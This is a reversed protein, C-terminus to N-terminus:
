VEDNVVHARNVELHGVDEEGILLYSVELGVEKSVWATRGPCPLIPAETAASPRSALFGGPGRSLRERSIGRYSLRPREGPGTLAELQCVHVCVGRAPDAAHNTGLRKISLINCQRSQCAGDTESEPCSFRTAAFRTVLISRTRTRSPNLSKMPHADADVKAVSPDLRHGKHVNHNAAVIGAGTLALREHM